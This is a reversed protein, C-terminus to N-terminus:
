TDVHIARKDLRVGHEFRDRRQRADARRDQQEPGEPKQATTRGYPPLDARLRRQIGCAQRVTRLYHIQKARFGGSAPLDNKHCAGMWRYGTAYCFMEPAEIGHNGLVAIALQDPLALRFQQDPM